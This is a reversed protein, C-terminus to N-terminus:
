TTKVFDVGENTVDRPQMREFVLQQKIYEVIVPIYDPPINIESDMDTSDGGSIMTVSATYQSLVLTSLIFVFEGEPIALLRNPIPRMSRYISKQNQTLLVVPFSLQGNDDKIVITSIGENYGIGVPIEPLTVKWLFNEDQSISLNKFTTYFSNNVFSIGELKKNDIYNTKAAHAVAPELWTNVLGVTIDADDNPQGGYIQRRIMEIFIDRRM